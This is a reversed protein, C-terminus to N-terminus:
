LQFEGLVPLHDSLAFSRPDDSYMRFDGEFLVKYRSMKNVIDGKARIYDIRKVLGNARTTNGKGEGVKNFLDVTGGEELAKYEPSGPQHNLDGQLIVSDVNNKLDFDIAKILEDIERLRIQTGEKDGKYWLHASHVSILKNNSPLRLIAKGWHRTFLDKSGKGVFPRNEYSIINYHSLIAGPFSGKYDSSPFYAYDMGLWNAMMAVVSKEPAESFNILNPNYLALQLAIRKSIQGLERAKRVLDYKEGEPLNHGNIGKYGICGNFINYAISRIMMEDNDYNDRRTNSVHTNSFNLASAGFPLLSLGLLSLSSQKLFAKRTVSFDPKNQDTNKKSHM